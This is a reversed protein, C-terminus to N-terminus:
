FFGNCGVFLNDVDKTKCFEGSPVSAQEKQNNQDAEKQKSLKEVKENYANVAVVSAAIGLSVLGLVVLRKKDLM